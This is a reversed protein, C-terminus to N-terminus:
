TQIKIKVSSQPTEFLKIFTKFAKTFGKLVGCILTFIFIFNLKREEGQIM